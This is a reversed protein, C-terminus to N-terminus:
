HYSFAAESLASSELKDIKMRRHLEARRSKRPLWIEEHKRMQTLTVAVYNRLQFWKMEQFRWSVFLMVSSLTGNWGLDEEWLNLFVVHLSKFCVLYCHIWDRIEDPTLLESYCINVERCGFKEIVLFKFCKATAPSNAENDYTKFAMSIKGGVCPISNSILPNAIEQRMRTDKRRELSYLWSHAM